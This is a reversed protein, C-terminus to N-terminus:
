AKGKKGIQKKDSIISEAKCELYLVNTSPTTKADKGDGSPGGESDRRQKSVYSGERYTARRERGSNGVVDIEEDHRICVQFLKKERTKILSHSTNNNKIDIYKDFPM